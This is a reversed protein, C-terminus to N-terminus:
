HTFVLIRSEERVVCFRGDPRNFSNELQESILLESFPDECAPCVADKKNEWLQRDGTDNHLKLKHRIKHVDFPEPDSM